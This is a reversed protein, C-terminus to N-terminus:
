TIIWQEVFIAVDSFNDDVDINDANIVFSFNSRVFIDCLPNVITLGVQEAALGKSFNYIKSLSASQTSNAYSFMVGNFLDDVKVYVKRNAVAASTSFTADVSLVKAMVYTGPDYPAGQGPGAPTLEVVSLYGRGSLSDNIISGPFALASGSTVYDSFLVRFPTVASGDVGGITLGVRVFCQGRQISPTLLSVVANILEAVNNNNGAFQFYFYNPAGSTSIRGSAINFEGPVGDEGNIRQRYAVNVSVTTTAYVVVQLKFTSDVRIGTEM